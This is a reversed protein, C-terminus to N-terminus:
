VINKKLLGILSQIITITNSNAERLRETCAKLVDRQAELIQIAGSWGPQQTMSVYEEYKSFATNYMHYQDALGQVSHFAEIMRTRLEKDPVSGIMHVNAKFTIFIDQTFQYKYGLVSGEPLDKWMMDITNVFPQMFAEAEVLVAQYFNQLTREEVEKQKKAALELSHKMHWRMTLWSIVGGLAAGGLGSILPIVIQLLPSRGVLEVQVVNPDM